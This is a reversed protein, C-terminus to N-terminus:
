LHPFQPESFHLKKGLVPFPLWSRYWAPWVGSSTGKGVEEGCGRDRLRGSFERMSERSSFVAAKRQDEDEGGREWGMGCAMWSRKLGLVLQKRAWVGWHNGRGVSRSRTSFVELTQYQCLKQGWIRGIVDERREECLRLSSVIREIGHANRYWGMGYGVPLVEVWLWQWLYVVEPGEWDWLFWERLSILFSKQITVIKNVYRDVM